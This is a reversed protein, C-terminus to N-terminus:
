RASAVADSEISGALRRRGRVDGALARDGFNSEM